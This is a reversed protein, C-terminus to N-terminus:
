LYKMTVILESVDGGICGRNGGQRTMKNEQLEDIDEDEVNDDGETVYADYDDDNM